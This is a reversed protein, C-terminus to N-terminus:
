PFFVSTTYTHTENAAGSAAQVPTWQVTLTVQSASVAVASAAGNPLGGSAPDSARAAWASMVTADPTPTNLNIMTAAMESALMAARQTDDSGVSFQLARAQLTILGLLGFTVILVGVLMEIMAFGRKDERSIHKMTMATVPM